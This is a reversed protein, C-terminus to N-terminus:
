LSKLLADKKALSGNAISELIPFNRNLQHIVLLLLQQLYDPDMVQNRSMALVYRYYLTGTPGISFHGMPLQNNAEYIFDIVREQSKKDLSFPVAAFFQILSISHLKKGRESPIYLVNIGRPRQEVDEPLIIHLVPGNLPAEAKYFQTSLDLDEAVKAWHKLKEFELDLKENSEQM